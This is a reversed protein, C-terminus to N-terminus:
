GGDASGGRRLDPQGPADVGLGSRWVRIANGLTAGWEPGDSLNPNPRGGDVILPLNQRAFTVSPAPPQASGCWSVVDATGDAGASWPESGAGCPRGSPGTRRRVRRATRWGSAATSRRWSGGRPSRRAGGDAGAPRHGSARITGPVAASPDAHPRDVGGRGGHAPLEPGIPVHDGAGAPRGGGPPRTAHWVGEGPLAPHIVPPIRAPRYLATPRGPPPRRPSASRPCRGHARRWRESSREVLVLDARGRQRPPRQVNARVWEVSRVGLSTSSPRTLRGSTPTPSAPWASCPPWCSSGGCGAGAGTRRRSCPSRRRAPAPRPPRRRSRESDDLEPAPWVRAARGSVRAAIVVTPWRCM